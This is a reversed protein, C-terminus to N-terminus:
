KRLRGLVLDPQKKGGLICGNRGVNVMAPKTEKGEGKGGELRIEMKCGLHYKWFALKIVNDM